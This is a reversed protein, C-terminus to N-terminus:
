HCGHHDQSRQSYQTWALLGACIIARRINGRSFGERAISASLTLVSVALFFFRLKQVGVASVSGAFVLDLLTPLWCCSCSLLAFGEPLLTSILRHARWSFSHGPSKEAPASCDHCSMKSSESSEKLPSSSSSSSSLEAM